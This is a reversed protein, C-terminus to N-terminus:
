ALGSRVAWIAAQTRDSVGVKAIFHQVHEKVTEHSIGFRGAIQHNTLGETVARLIEHERATLPADVEASLHSTSSVAAVRRLEARSWVPKCLAAAEIAAILEIRSFAKLLFGAAGLAKARAMQTSHDHEAFMVIPLQPNQAKIRELAKLGGAGPLRVSLLVVAPATSTALEVASHATDAEAVISISSERFFVRLGARTVEQAEGVLLPISM